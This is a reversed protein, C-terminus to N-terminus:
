EIDEFKNEIGELAGIYTLFHESWGSIEATWVGRYNIGNKHASVDVIYNNKAYPKPLRNVRDCDQSDSFIIIRDFDGKVNEKCWELCQRTFIGGGGIRNRTDIIQQFLSLGKAPNKIHCHRGIGDADSGATTILEYSECQNVALLAMASAVTLRDFKSKSSVESGMSGSVDVIFLTNGPLKPLKNYTKLMVSEIDSSYEPNMQIAALFNTPLLMASDISNLGKRIVNHSVNAQKMNSINRLMALAGLKNENILREWTEKKDKGTSLAVEWTDPITLTRSAIKAFLEEKGQEPKPHVLFMADRLKIEGNRDYKAFQYENFKNFTAALGRQAAKALPKLSGNLKKYIALFDTIQDPRTIVRQLVEPVFRKHSEHQLMLAAMFLPTHRLKQVVRTEIALDAVARPDCAPLLEEIQESVTQGDVYTIDEWLLNALTLRRLLAIDAQRAAKAGEGGALRTDITKSARKLVPNLKSM